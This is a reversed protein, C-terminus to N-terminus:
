LVVTVEAECTGLHSFVEHLRHDLRKKCVPRTVVQQVASHQLQKVEYPAFVNASEYLVKDLAEPLAQLVDVIYIGELRELELM